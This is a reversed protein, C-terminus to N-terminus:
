AKLLVFSAFSDLYSTNLVILLHSIRNLIYTDLNEFYLIECMFKMNEIIEVTHFIQFERLINM